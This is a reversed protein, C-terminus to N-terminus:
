VPVPAPETAAKVVLRGDQYVREIRGSLDSFDLADGAVVVLDARKGPEITGLERDLGMLEAATKATAVLVDTPSMGIDQMLQLEELNTGHPVVGADTGMAIKVGAAAARRISDRHTEVVDTAKVLVHEPIPVGADAARLVGLPAVLTPVLYTGHELMLALAEDDIYIGHEISRVGARVANKIGIAAQAHSMVFLGAARAEECMTQIEDFAFGRQDPSDTPSLVGGSTAIKIVDAGNRVLERVKRRAEEVGDVIQSPMGPYVPFLDATGGSPMWGDGHGGTQSLMTLSIQLRPGRVIGEEVARKVGLDAGGADRVTTIGVRITADLNKIADYFMYSFPTQLHRWMDLHGFMLHVHTDFLGPLLTSGSVDVQEDGDLGVGVEAILGDEVAVDAEAVPAGTGDFIRGGTFVTRM